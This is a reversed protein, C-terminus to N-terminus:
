SCTKQAATQGPAACLVETTPIKGKRLVLRAVKTNFGPASIWVEITQKARAASLNM